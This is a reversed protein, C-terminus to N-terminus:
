ATNGESWACGDSRVLVRHADKISGELWREGYRADGVIHVDPVTAKLADFMEHDPSRYTIAVLTTTGIELDPGGDRFGVVIASPTGRRVYARRLVTLDRGAWRVRAAEMVHTAELLAGVDPWRTILVVRKGRALLVEIAALGGGHGVDDLIAVTDSEIPEGGILRALSVLTLHEIGEVTTQQTLAQPLEFRDKSGTAIVVADVGSRSLDAVGVSRGLRVDVGLRAVESALWDVIGTFAERGPVRRLLGAQGGLEGAAEFLTVRHGREAAVRAAELGAVGGGVVTVDRPRSAVPLVASGVELELGASPNM